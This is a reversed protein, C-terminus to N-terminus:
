IGMALDVIPTYGVEVIPLSNCYNNKDDLSGIEKLNLLRTPEHMRFSIRHCFVKNSKITNNNSYAKFKGELSIAPTIAYKTAPTRM